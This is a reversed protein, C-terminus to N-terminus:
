MPKRALVVLDKSIEANFVDMSVGGFKKVDVFGAEELQQSFEVHLIPRLRVRQSKEKVEDGSKSRTLINFLIGGEDYEYYRVFTKEGVEKENQIRDHGALIRDYNLTQCFLVGGAQLLDFFNALALKLNEVKVLHPLSNGMVFVADFRKNVLGGLGEFTGVFTEIGAGRQKAHNRTLRVMQESADVATVRVGLEALLLAHFGSGCGADLAAKIKHREVLLRFFPREKVFRKEFGTMADYDPALLDYFDAIGKPEDTM